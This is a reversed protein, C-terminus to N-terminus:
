TRMTPRAYSEDGPGRRDANRPSRRWARRATAPSRRRVGAATRSRWGPPSTSTPGSGCRGSPRACGSRRTRPSRPPWSWRGTARPGPRCWRTSWGRARAAEAAAAPTGTFIMAPRGAGARGPPHAAPHRRRRPHRRGLGRAPGVVADEGAVILDCSLALECGAASPSATAGRRRRARAPGAGRRVRGARAAAAGDPRRRHLLQAGQPRRGRLVGQPQLEDRRRLAGVRRRGARRLRRALDRAMATSVANM